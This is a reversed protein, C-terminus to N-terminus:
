TDEKIHQEAIRKVLPGWGDARKHKKIIGEAIQEANVMVIYEYDAIGKVTKVNRIYLTLM